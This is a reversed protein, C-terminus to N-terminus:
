CKTKIIRTPIFCRISLFIMVHIMGKVAHSMLYFQFYMHILTDSFMNMIKIIINSTNKKPEYNLPPGQTGYLM